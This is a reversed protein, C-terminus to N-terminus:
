VMCTWDGWVGHESRVGGGLSGQAGNYGRRTSARADGGLHGQQPPSLRHATTLHALMPPQAVPSPTSVPEVCLVMQQRALSRKGEFAESVCYITIHSGNPDDYAGEIKLEKVDIAAKIKETCTGVVTRDPGGSQMRVNGLVSALSPRQLLATSAGSHMMQPAARAVLPRGMGMLAPRALALSSLM